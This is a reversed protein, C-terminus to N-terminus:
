QLDIKVAKYDQTPNEQKIPNKTPDELMKAKEDALEDLRLM